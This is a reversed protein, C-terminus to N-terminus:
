DVCWQQGQDVKQMKCTDGFRATVVVTDLFDGLLGDYLDDTGYYRAKRALVELVGPERLICQAELKYRGKLVEHSEDMLTSPSVNMADAYDRARSLYTQIGEGFHTMIVHNHARVHITDDETKVLSVLVGKSFDQNGFESCPQGSRRFKAREDLLQHALVVAL